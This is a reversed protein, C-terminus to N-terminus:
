GVRVDGRGVLREADADNRQLRDVLDRGMHEGDAARALRAPLPSVPGGCDGPWGSLNTSARTTDYVRARPTAISSEPPEAVGIPATLRRGSEERTPRHPRTEFRGRGTM